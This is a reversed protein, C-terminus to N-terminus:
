LSDSSESPTLSNSFFFSVIGQGGKLLKSPSLWQELRDLQDLQDLQELQHGWLFQLLGYFAQRPEVFEAPPLPVHLEKLCM